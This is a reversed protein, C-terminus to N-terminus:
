ARSEGRPSSGSPKAGSAGAAARAALAAAIPGPVPRCGCAQAHERHWHLRQEFSARPALPHERHWRENV